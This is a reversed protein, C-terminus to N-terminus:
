TLSIMTGCKGCKIILAGAQIRGRGLLRGCAHCRYETQHNDIAQSIPEKHHKPNEYM